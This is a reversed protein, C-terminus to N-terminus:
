RSFLKAKQAAAFCGAILVLGVCSNVILTTADPGTVKLAVEDTAVLQGKSLIKIDNKASDISV